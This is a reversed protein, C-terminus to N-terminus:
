GNLLIRHWDVKILARSTSLLKAEESNEEEGKSRRWCIYSFMGIMRVLLVYIWGFSCYSPFVCVNLYFFFAFKTGILLYLIKRYLCKYTPLERSYVEKQLFLFLVYGGCFPYTRLVRKRAAPSVDERPLFSFDKPWVGREISPQFNNKRTLKQKTAASTFNCAIAAPLLLSSCLKYMPLSSLTSYKTTITSGTRVM